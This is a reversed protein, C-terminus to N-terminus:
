DAGLFRRNLFRGPRAGTAQGERYVVQGSVLVLGIGEALRRPEAYTATDKIRAPDYLTIDAWYGPVLRGIGELGYVEAPLGSLKYAAAGIAADSSLDAYRSLYRPFTGYLRPHTKEGVDVGDSCVMVRPHSLVTRVDEPAMGQFIANVQGEEELLLSLALEGPSKGRRKGAEALSLGTLAKNRETVVSGVLIKDWGVSLTRNDWGELQRPFDELIRRRSEKDRLLALLGAVGGTMTWPPLILTMTTCSADYPYCDATVRLGESVAADMMALADKVKGHNAKGMVKLHSLNLQVGSRRAVEIAEAVAALLGAGDGRMHTTYIGGVAGCVRALEVMEDIDSYMGPAYVLGSTLGFAGEALEEALLRKMEEMEKGTPRREAFGMSNIRLNGHGIFAGQNNAIGERGAEIRYERLNEWPWRGAKGLVTGTYEEIAERAPGYAPYASIGCQGSLETTVGQSIKALCDPKQWVSVESHAHVDIFGPTAVLGDAEIVRKASADGPLCGLAAIKGQSIALDGPRCPSGDGTALRANRIILDYRM